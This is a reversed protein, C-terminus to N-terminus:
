NRLPSNKPNYTFILWRHSAPSENEHTMFIKMEFVIFRFLLFPDRLPQSSSNSIHKNQAPSLYMFSEVINIQCHFSERKISHFHFNFLNKCADRESVMNHITGSSDSNITRASFVCFKQNFYDFIIPFSVPRECM